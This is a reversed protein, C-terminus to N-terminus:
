YDRQEQLLANQRKLAEVTELERSYRIDRKTSNFRESLPIVKGNNDYEVTDGSKVRSFDEDIVIMGDETVVAPVKGTRDMEGEFYNDWAYQVFDM